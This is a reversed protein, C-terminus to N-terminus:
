VRGTDYRYRIGIFFIFMMGTDAWDKAPLTVLAGVTVVLKSRYRRIFIGIPTKEVEVGDHPISIPGLTTFSYVGQIQRIYVNLLSHCVVIEKNRKVVGKFQTAKSKTPLRAQVKGIDGYNAVVLEIYIKV